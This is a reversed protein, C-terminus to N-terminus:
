TTISKGEKVKNMQIIYCELKDKLDADLTNGKKDKNLSSIFTFVDQFMPLFLNMFLNEHRDIFLGHHIVDKKMDFQNKALADLNQKILDDGEQKAIIFQEITNQK